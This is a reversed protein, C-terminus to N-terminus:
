AAAARGIRRAARLADFRVRRKHLARAAVAERVAALSEAARALQTKSALRAELAELRAEM